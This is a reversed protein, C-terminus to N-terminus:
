MTAPCCPAKMGGCTNFVLFILVKKSTYQVDAEQAVQSHDWLIRFKCLGAKTLISVKEHPRDNNLVDKYSHPKFFFNAFFVRM